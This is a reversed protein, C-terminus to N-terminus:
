KKGGGISMVPCMDMGQQAEDLEEPTEPQKIVYAYGDEDAKYILPSNSYCAACAICGEGSADDKQTTHWPGAVSLPHPNNPNSM